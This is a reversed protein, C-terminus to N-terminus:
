EKWSDLLGDRVGIARTAAYQDAAYCLPKDFVWNMFGRLNYRADYLSTLVTSWFLFRIRNM